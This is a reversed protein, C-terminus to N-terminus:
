NFGFLNILRFFIPPLQLPWLSVRGDAVEPSHRGPPPKLYVRLSLHITGFIPNKGGLDDMKIPNEM